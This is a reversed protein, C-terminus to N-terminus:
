RCLVPFYITRSRLAFCAGSNCGSFLEIEPSASAHFVVRLNQEIARTVSLDGREGHLVLLSKLQLQSAAEGSVLSVLLSAPAIFHLMVRSNTPIIFLVFGLTFGYRPPIGKVEVLRSLV